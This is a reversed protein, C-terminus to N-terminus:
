TQSEVVLAVTLLFGGALVTATPDVGFIAWLAVALASLAIGGLVAVFMLTRASM